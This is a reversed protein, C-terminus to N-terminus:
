KSAQKSVIATQIYIIKANLRNEWVAGGSAAFSDMFSKTTEIFLGRKLAKKDIVRFTIERKEVDVKM